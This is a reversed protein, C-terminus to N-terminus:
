LANLKKFYDLQFKEKKAFIIDSAWSIDEKKFAFFKLLDNQVFDDLKRFLEQFLNFDVAKLRMANSHIKLYQEDGKSAVLKVQENTVLSRKQGYHKFFVSLPMSQFVLGRSRLLRQKKPSVKKLDDESIKDKLSIVGKEFLEKLKDFALEIIDEFDFKADVDILDNDSMVSLQTDTWDLDVPLKGEIKVLGNNILTSAEDKIFDLGLLNLFENLSTQELSNESIAQELEEKSKIDKLPTSM